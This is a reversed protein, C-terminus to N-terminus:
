IYPLVRHASDVKYRTLDNAKCGSEAPFEASNKFASLEFVICRLAVFRVNNKLNKHISKHISLVGFFSLFM